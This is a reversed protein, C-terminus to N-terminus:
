ASFGCGDPTTRTLKSTSGDACTINHSGDLYSYTITGGTPLTISKIRGTYNQSGQTTPEYAITYKDSPVQTQDPLDIETVLNVQTPGYDAIGSCGFATQVTYSTYKMTYSSTTSQPNTYGFTLPSSPTGLGSVTLATTGLTDTFTTVSGNYTVSIQNGNSDTVSGGAGSGQQLPPSMVAGDSRAVTASLYGGSTGVTMSYGSGDGATMTMPNPPGGGCPYNNWTSASVGISHSTGFTDHYIFGSYTNWYYWTTGNPTCSSQTTSYTIYGTEVQTVGAWGWNGVPTWVSSGTASVPSWVSSDYTLTYSFPIGRGARSFVPIGFHVNLNANNITDFPGGSFSGFPPLGPTPQALALCSVFISLTASQILTRPLM